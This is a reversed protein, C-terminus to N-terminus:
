GLAISLPATYTPASIETLNLFLLGRREPRDGTYSPPNTLSMLECGTPGYYVPRSMDEATSFVTTAVFYKTENGFTIQRGPTTTGDIAGLPVSCSNDAYFYGGRATGQVQYKTSNFLWLRGDALTLFDPTLGGGQGDGIAVGLYKGTADVVRPATAAAGSDGKPGTDGPPGQLGQIGQMNWSVKTETKKCSGKNLLRIAGSSKSACATIISDSAAQVYQAAGLAIVALTVGAAFTAISRSKM